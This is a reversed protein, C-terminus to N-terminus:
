LNEMLCEFDNLLEIVTVNTAQIFLIQTRHVNLM